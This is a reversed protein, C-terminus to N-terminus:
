SGTHFNLAHLVIATSCAFLGLVTGFIAVAAVGLSLAGTELYRQLTLLVFGLGGAAMLLGPFGLSLLPREREVTKLATDFLQYGHIIPNHSSPNDVEYDITVGVEEILYDQEHAFFLIDLSADMRNGIRDERALAEIARDNYLRFGSQTDNVYSRPRVVGMSLNTLVNIVLLGFRRYTPLATESGEVFRSGIVIEAGKTRQAEVLKPIEAPDHQRDGDLIVLCDVDRRHAERFITKLAAGYGRNRDHEVVTAGANAALEATRDESGDDVVIMEDVHESAGHVVEAIARAENYAPTAAVVAPSDDAEPTRGGDPSEVTPTAGGTPLPEGTAKSTTARLDAIPPPTKSGGDATVDKPDGGRMVRDPEVVQAALPAVVEVSPRAAVAVLDEAACPLHLLTEISGGGEVHRTYVVKSGSRGWHGAEDPPQIVVDLDAGDPLLRDTVRIIAGDSRTSEFRYRLRPPAGDDLELSKEVRIGKREATFSQPTRRRIRATGCDVCAYEGDTTEVIPANCPICKLAANRVPRPYRSM